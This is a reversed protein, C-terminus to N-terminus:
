NVARRAAEEGAIRGFVNGILLGLGGVYGQGLINGVMVEGAAFINDAPKKRSGFLVRAKEDVEVGLYTFTIGPRLPYSYFPPTDIKRAWNTKEPTVGETHCGDPQTADFDGPQVGANFDKVTKELADADLELKDALERITGAEIAPFITPMFLGPVKSDIIAYAIQDPQQGVLRGWIAYRKPWIDEGEDYFRAGHRNVMISYIVCDVRTAIGGDFKPSRADIPVAHCQDADAIQRAGNDLLIRLLGGKNYPTGRILFNEAAEGWGEKLWEINAEFGGSAVIFTRTSVQHTDGDISVDAGTCRGNDIQLDTVEADYVIDVGLEGAKAYLSNMMAKGGGFFFANTRALGLTGTLPQQFRVGQEMMWEPVKESRELVMRALEENTRGATVRLLDDWYEDVTYPGTVYETAEQHAYRINRTHRSNGGRLERPAWELVLVRAGNHRATIAACLAANGAGIVLVDYNRSLGDVSQKADIM